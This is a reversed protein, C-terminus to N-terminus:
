RRTSLLIAPIGFILLGVLGYLTGRGSYLIEPGYLDKYNAYDYLALGISLVVIVFGLVMFARYARVM